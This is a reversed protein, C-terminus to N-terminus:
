VAARLARIAKWVEALAQSFQDQTVPHRKEILAAKALALKAKTTRYPRGREDAARWVFRDGFLIHLRALHRRATVRRVGWAFAVDAVTWEETHACTQVTVSM